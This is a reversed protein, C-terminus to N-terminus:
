HVARRAAAAPILQVQNQGVLELKLNNLSAVAELAFIAEPQSLEKPTRLSFKAGLVDKAIPLAKRGVLDAYLKLLPTLDSDAFKM